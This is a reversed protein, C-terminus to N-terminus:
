SKLAFLQWMGPVGKLDHTGHDEFALGSGTVLDVVTRSVVIECAGAAAMVRAAIHVGLGAVDDGVIEIEGTHIGCRIDVDLSSCGGRLLRACEIADLPLDFTALAGDGETGVLRGGSRVVASEVVGLYTELLERWRQDGLSAARETSGVVDVFLVTALARKKSRTAGETVFLAIEDVITDADDGVWWIMDRGPLEVLRANPIHDATYRGHGASEGGMLEVETRQIVLTPCAIQPLLPRMDREIRDRIVAAAMAPSARRHGARDWWKWFAADHLVSPAPQFNPPADPDVVSRVTPFAEDPRAGHPYDEAWLWRPRVNVLVLSATREPCRAAFDIAVYGNFSLGLLTARECGTADLVARADELREEMTPAGTRGLPDSLGLGRPNFSIVRGISSMRKLWRALRPEDELMDVPIEEFYLFDVPGEGWTAYAVHADGVRAFKTDV